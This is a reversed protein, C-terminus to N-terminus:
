FEEFVQLMEKQIAAVKAKEKNIQLEQTAKQIRTMLLYREPQSVGGAIRASRRLSSAQETNTAEESLETTEATSVPQEEALTTAPTLTETEMPMTEASPIQQTTPQRGGAELVEEVPSILTMSNLKDIIAQTTVMKKWNSRRVKNGTTLNLFDWSGTSNNCPHLAICPLTRSRSTNDTGDYVEAYDGFALQLSKKYNVQTGTFLRYPSM